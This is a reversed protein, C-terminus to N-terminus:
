VCMILITNSENLVSFDYYVIVSRYGANVHSVRDINVQYYNNRKQRSWESLEVWLEEERHSSGTIFHKTTIGFSIFKQTLGHLVSPDVM